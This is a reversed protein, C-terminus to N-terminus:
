YKSIVYFSTLLGVLGMVTSYIRWSRDEQESSKPSRPYVFVIDNQQLNYAPSNFLSESRLNVMIMKRQNDDRRIVAVKEPMANNSLGGARAIAEILNIHDEPATIVGVSQVEGLVSIKLNILKAIVIPNNLLNKGVLKDKICGSVEQMTLGGVHIMGLVPFEINGESDVVYGDGQRSANEASALEGQSNIRFSSGMMNFPMALESNGSYVSISLKDDPQVKINSQANLAYPLNPQMDEAIITKKAVCSSMAIFLIGYLLLSILKKTKM